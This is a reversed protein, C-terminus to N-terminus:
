SEWGEREAPLIERFKVSSRPRAMMEAVRERWELYHSTDKHAAAATEDDYVEVLVFHAPNAQDAIFDFRAIGSERISAEANSKTATIFDEVRGPLVEIDVHVIFM